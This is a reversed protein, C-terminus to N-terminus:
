CQVSSVEADDFAAYIDDLNVDEYEIIRVPTYGKKFWDNNKIEEITSRQMSSFLFLFIDASMMDLGQVWYDMCTM